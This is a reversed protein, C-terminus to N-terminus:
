LVQCLFSCQLLSGDFGSGEHTGNQGLHLSNLIWLNSPVSNNNSCPCVPNHSDLLETPTMWIVQSMFAKPKVSSPCAIKHVSPTCLLTCITTNCIPFTPRECWFACLTSTPPFPSKYIPTKFKDPCECDFLQPYSAMHLLHNKCTLLGLKPGCFGACM